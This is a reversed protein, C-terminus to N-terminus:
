GHDTQILLSSSAEKKRSKVRPTTPTYCIVKEYTSSMLGKDVERGPLQGRVELLWEGVTLISSMMGM